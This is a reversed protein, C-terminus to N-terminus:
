PGADCIITRTATAGDFCGRNYEECARKWLGSRDQIQNADLGCVAGFHEAGMAQIVSEDWGTAPIEGDPTEQGWTVGDRVGQEYAIQALALRKARRDALTVTPILGERRAWIERVLAAVDGRGALLDKRGAKRCADKVDAPDAHDWTLGIAQGSPDSKKLSLTGYNYAWGRKKNHSVEEGELVINGEFVEVDDGKRLYEGPLDNAGDVTGPLPLDMHPTIVKCWYRCKADTPKAVYTLSEVPTIPNSEIPNSM